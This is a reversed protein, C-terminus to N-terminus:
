LHRNKRLKFIHFLNKLGFILFILVPVLWLLGGETIVEQNEPSYCRGKENFCDIWIVYRIYFLYIFFGSLSLYVMAKGFTIKWQHRPTSGAKEMTLSFFLLFGILIIGLGLLLSLFM